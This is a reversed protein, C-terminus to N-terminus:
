EFKQPNELIDEINCGLVRTLKYLTQAQAKDIDNVKQEYLQISRLNVGSLKSLEAQSLGRAERIVKLKVDLVTENYKRDMADVFSSLDMEHYLKYMLLIDSLPIRNFIDKFRKATYWQYYALSWGAWYEPSREISFSALPFVEDPNIRKLIEQVIEAAAKGSLVAPSGIEFERSINSQTFVEIFWDPSQKCDNIAYDLMNALLKQADNLYLENYAHIM